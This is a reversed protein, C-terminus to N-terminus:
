EFEQLNVSEAWGTAGLQQRIDEFVLDYEDHFLMVPGQQPHMGYKKLVRSVEHAFNYANDKLLFFAEDVPQGAVNGTLAFQMGVHGQADKDRHYNLNLEFAPREGIAALARHLHGSKFM